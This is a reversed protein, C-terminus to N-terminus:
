FCYNKSYKIYSINTKILALKKAESLGQKSDWSLLLDVEITRVKLYLSTTTPIKPIRYSGESM